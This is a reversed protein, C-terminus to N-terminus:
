IFVTIGAQTVSGSQGGGLGLNYLPLDEMSLKIPSRNVYVFDEILPDRQGGGLGLSGATSGDSERGYFLTGGLNGIQIEAFNDVIAASFVGTKRGKVDLAEAIYISGYTRAPVNVYYFDVVAVPASMQVFKDGEIRYIVFGSTESDLSGIALGFGGLAPVDTFNLFPINPTGPTVTSQDGGGLGLSAPETDSISLKIPSRNVYVFDDVIPGRQGGGLGLNGGDQHDLSKIISGSNATFPMNQIAPADTANATLKYVRNGAIFFVYLTDTAADYILEPRGAGTYNGGGVTTLQTETGFKGFSTEKTVYLDGNREFCWWRLGGGMEYSAINKVDGGATLKNTPNAITHSFYATVLYPSYTRVTDHISSEDIFGHWFASDSDKNSKGFKLTASANAIPKPVPMSSPVANVTIDTWAILKNNIYLEIDQNSVGSAIRRIVVNYVQNVVIRSVTTRLQVLGTSGTHRYILRGSSDVSLSYLVNDSTLPGDCSVITRLLSGTSNYSSLQFWTILTMDGILQFAASSAPSAFTSAGNFTRANGLRGAEVGPSSTVTLHRAGLGEDLALDTETAEDFGWYGILNADAPLRYSM